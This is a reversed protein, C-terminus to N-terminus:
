KTHLERESYKAEIDQPNVSIEEAHCQMILIEACYEKELYLVWRMCKMLLNSALLEDGTTNIDFSTIFMSLGVPMKM